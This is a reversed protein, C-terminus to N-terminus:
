GRARELLLVVAAAPIASTLADVRDLVGGHGPLWTGSDKVGAVRKIWSELLDGEVGLLMLLLFITLGVVGQMPPPLEVGGWQLLGYYLAVAAAAGGLGEWTKGPSIAPALKHKGWVRGCAYAGTDSLWPIGLLLILLGGRDHLLVFSLWLPLIAVVGAALLAMRPPRWGRWLWVPAVVVWFVASAALASDIWARAGLKWWLLGGMVVFVALYVWRLGAGLGALAGWEWAAGLMLPLLALAWGWQPLGFLAGCFLLLLVAATYIRTRLM